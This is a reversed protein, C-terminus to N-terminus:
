RYTFPRTIDDKWPHDLMIRGLEGNRYAYLLKIAGYELDPKHVTSIAGGVPLRKVFSKHDRLAIHRTLEYILDTPGPLDLAKVYSYNKQQNLLFLLYDAVQLPLVSADPITNCIALKMGTHMDNIKGDQIGPTDIIFTLPNNCVKIKFSVAKTHGPNKGVSIGKDLKLYHKRAAKILSSKGVNPIGVVMINITSEASRNFRNTSQVLKICYPIVKKLSEVSRNGKLCTFFVNEIGEASYKSRIEDRMETNTKILDSKNLLLISPKGGSIYELIPNRGSYPIRADHVEIVCDVNHVQKRMRNQGKTMHKPFWRTTEPKVGFDFFHRMNLPYGDENLFKSFEGSTAFYKCYSLDLHSLNVPKYRLLKSLTNIM